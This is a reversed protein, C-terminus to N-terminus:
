KLLNRATDFVSSVKLEKMCKFHQLPCVKPGHDSCPRCDLGLIELIKSGPTLPGFGMQPITAGFIAITPVKFASAFHIPSSDGSILLDLRPYICRLQSLSTRGCLNQVRDSSGIKQEIVEGLHKEQGSGLIVITVGLDKHLLKALEAFYEVPWMKTGWKSGPSLGIIKQDKGVAAGPWPETGQQLTPYAKLIKKRSVGLSELLMAVRQVEHLVAVRPVRYKALFGFHTENYTVTPIRTYRALLSSRVSRHAQLMLSTQPNVGSEKLSDSVSKMQSIPHGKRKQFIHRSTLYPEEELVVHGIGTTVVHQKIKPFEQHLLKMAGTSLVIDGLFSTQLWVVDSIDRLNTLM